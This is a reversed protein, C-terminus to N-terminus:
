ETLNAGPFFVRTKTIQDPNIQNEESFEILYKENQMLFDIISALINPMTLPDSTGAKLQELSIGSLKIYHGLYEENGAVFSLGNIAIIEAHDRDM